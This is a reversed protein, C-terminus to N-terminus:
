ADAAPLLYGSKDAAGSYYNQSFLFGSSATVLIESTADLGQILNRAVFGSNTTGDTTILIGTTVGTTQQVSIMNGVMMLNTLIKGTTIPIVAGTGTTASSYYNTSINVRDQTGTAAILDVVGTTAKLTMTNGQISLGDNANTTASTQVVILGNLVSSTDNVDCGRLTFGRAVTTVAGSAVTQSASVTYTGAGGATGTMQNVIKSGKIFGSTSSSLTSGPYLYGTVSSATLVTGAIVGTFSANGTSSTSGGLTFLAAINLFNPVIRLNQLTVNSGTVNITATNATGLTFTPRDEGTGLGIVTLGSLDLSISGSTSTTARAASITERHGPKVLLVDSWVAPPQGQLIAQAGMLSAFPRAFTGRNNDSGNNSDLWCVRGPYTNLIPVGQVVLGNAFGQPFTSMADFSPQAGLSM